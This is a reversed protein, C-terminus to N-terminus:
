YVSVHIHDNHCLTNYQQGSGPKTCDVSGSKFEYQRWRTPDKTSWIKNQWIIYYIGFKEQNQLLYTIMKQAEALESSSNSNEGFRFMFDCARGKPHEGWTRNGWCSVSHNFLNNSKVGNYMAALRPTVNGGTGTPDIVSQGEPSFNSKASQLTPLNGNQVVQQSGSSSFDLFEFVKEVYKFNGYCYPSRWGCDSRTAHKLAFKKALEESYIAGNAFAFGTFGSGFNYSQLTIKIINDFNNVQSNNTKAARDKVEIWVKYFHEIGYKISTIPDTICGMKGGCMSESSQMIDGNPVNGGSEAMTLALIYPILQQIEDPTFMPGCDSKGACEPKPKAMAAMMEDKWKLVAENIGKTGIVSSTGSTASAEADNVFQNYLVQVFFFIVLAPILVIMTLLPLVFPRWQFRKTAETAKSLAKQGVAKGAKTLGKKVVAAWAAM